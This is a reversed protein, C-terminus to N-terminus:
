DSWPRGGIAGSGIRQRRKLLSIFRGRGQLSPQRHSRGPQCDCVANGTPGVDLSGSARPLAARPLSPKAVVPRLVRAARELEASQWLCLTTVTSREREVGFQSRRMLIQQLDVSPQAPPASELGLTRRQMLGPMASCPVPVM